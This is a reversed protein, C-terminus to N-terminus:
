WMHNLYTRIPYHQHLKLMHMSLTETAATTVLFTLLIHVRQEVKNKVSLHEDSIHTWQIYYWSLLSLFVLLIPALKFILSYNRFIKCLLSFYFLSYIFLYVIIDYDGERVVMLKTSRTPIHKHDQWVCGHM